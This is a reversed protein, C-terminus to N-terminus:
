IWYYDTVNSIANEFGEIFSFMGDATFEFGDKFRVYIM